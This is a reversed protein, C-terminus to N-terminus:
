CIHGLPYLARYNKIGKELIKKRANVKRKNGAALNYLFPSLHYMRMVLHNVAPNETGAVFYIKLFRRM